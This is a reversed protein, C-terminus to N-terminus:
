ANRFLKIGAEKEFESCILKLREARFLKFASKTGLKWVGSEMGVPILHSRMVRYFHQRGAERYKALYNRPLSSGIKENDRSVLFCINCLGNYARSSVHVRLQAQPFIHHRHKRSAQSVVSGGLPLEEGNELYRPKRSALLCFFARTRASSSNYQANQLDLVPDLREKLIFRRKGGKALAEFLNADAVINRHYGGGSYRTAVGTAWFRKRIETAQFGNPQGPHYYFFVALTALMNASPLYFEDQVPFRDHLYQVASLFANQYKHWVKKFENLAARDNDIKESWRRAMNALKPPDGKSDQRETILNFGMLIPDISGLEFMSERVKQRLENAMAHVDLKGMVAIARDAATIRMGQSNVRIFVEGIESLTAAQVIVIPVSYRLLRERCSKIRGLFWKARSPMRRKWDPALIDSVPVFLRDIPKRYVIRPAFEAEKEPNVVFCLRGFNIDRGRDNKRTEAQLAQYIVSLRQQGDIVFWITPNSSNFSPLVEAAQRILHASKHDMQWLFLSGIPMNRYISDLLKAARGGDWVFNRQLKPVAFRKQLLYSHLLRIKWSKLEAPKM